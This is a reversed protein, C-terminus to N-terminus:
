LLLFILFYSSKFAIGSEGYSHFLLNYNRKPLYNLQFISNKDIREFVTYKFYIIKNIVNIACVVLM